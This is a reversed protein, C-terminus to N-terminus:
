GSIFVATIISSVVFAVCLVLTIKGGTDLGKQRGFMTHLSGSGFAGGLEAFRGMQHLVMYILAISIVSHVAVMVAKVLVGGSV